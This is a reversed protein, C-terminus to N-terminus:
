HAMLMFENVTRFAFSTEHRGNVTMHFGERGVWLTAAFPNGDVFPFNLSTATGQKAITLNGRADVLSKNRDKNITGGIQQNCTVLDDVAILVFFFLQM